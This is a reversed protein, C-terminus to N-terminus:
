GSPRSPDQTMTRAPRTFRRSAAGAAVPREIGSPMGVSASASRLMRAYRRVLDAQAGTTIAPTRSRTADPRSTSM